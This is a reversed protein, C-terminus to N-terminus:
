RRRCQHRLQKRESMSDHSDVDISANKPVIMSRTTVLLSPSPLGFSKWSPPMSVDTFVITPQAVSSTPYLTSVPIHLRTTKFFSNRICFQQTVQKVIDMHLPSPSRPRSYSKMSAHKFM